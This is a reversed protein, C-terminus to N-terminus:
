RTNETERNRDGLDEEKECRKCEAGCNECKRTMERPLFINIHNCRKCAIPTLTDLLIYCNYYWEWNLNKIKDIEEETMVEHTKRWTMSKPSTLNRIEEETLKIEPNKDTAM